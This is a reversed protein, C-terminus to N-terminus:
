NGVKELIQPLLVLLGVAIATLTSILTAAAGIDKIKGAKQNYKFEFLDVLNELGTNVIEVTIVLGIAFALVVWSMADLGLWLGTAVVIGAVVAHVILSGEEKFSLAIGKFAHSFKKIIKRIVM